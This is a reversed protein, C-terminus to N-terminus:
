FNFININGIKEGNFSLSFVGFFSINEKDRLSIIIGNFIIKTFFQVEKYDKRAHSDEVVFVEHTEYDYGRGM